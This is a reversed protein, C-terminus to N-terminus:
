RLTARHLRATAVDGTADPRVTLEPLGAGGIVPLDHLLAASRHSIVSGTCMRAAAQAAIVPDTRRDPAAFVGRRIRILRGSRVAYALARDTWGAALAERRSLVGSAPMSRM